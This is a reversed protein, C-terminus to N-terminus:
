ESLPITQRSVMCYIDCLSNCHVHPPPLPLCSSSLMRTFCAACRACLDGVTVFQPPRNANFIGHIISPVQVYFDTRTKRALSLRGSPKFNSLSAPLINSPQLTSTKCARSVSDGGAFCDAKLQPVLERKTYKYM